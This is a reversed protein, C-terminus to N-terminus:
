WLDMCMKFMWKVQIIVTSKLMGHKALFVTNSDKLIQNSHIEFILGELQM